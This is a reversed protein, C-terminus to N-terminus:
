KVDQWIRKKSIYFFITLFTLFILSKLGLSKRHEMEPEAAWQLFIAVDHAMQDVTAVTGDEYAVQGDTLPAPMGIQSGSFYPNYNLGPTLKFGEPLPHNYGTLISYVHNAGDERAKVILSLDVPLANNNASRAAQENKFPDVFRDSPVAPREFMEGQDNPGDIVTHQKAIEKIEAESFGLEKLNRYYLHKMSHCVSCVEKYIQFGRQAAQRDVVGLVGEFPWKMQKPPLAETNAYSVGSITLCLIISIYRVFLRLRKYFVNLM